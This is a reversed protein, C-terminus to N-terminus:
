SLMKMLLDHVRDSMKELAKRAEKQSNEWQKDQSKAKNIRIQDDAKERNITIQESASRMKGGTKKRDIYNTYYNKAEPSLLAFTKDWMDETYGGYYKKYLNSLITKHENNKEDFPNDTTFISDREAEFEANARRKADNEMMQRAFTLAENKAQDQETQIQYLYQLYSQTKATDARNEIESIMGPVTATIKRNQNAVENRVNAYARQEEAKRLQNEYHQQSDSRTAGALLAASEDLNVKQMQANLTSDSTVAPLNKIKQNALQREANGANVTQPSYVEAPSSVQAMNAADRTAKISRDKTRDTSRNGLVLRAVSLGKQVIDPQTLVDIGNKVKDWFGNVQQGYQAKIVGGEKFSYNYKKAKRMDEIRQILQEKEKQIKALEKGTKGTTPFMKEIEENLIRRVEVPNEEVAKKFEPTDFEKKVRNKFGSSTGNGRISEQFRNFDYASQTQPTPNSSQSNKNEVAESTKKKSSDIQEKKWSRQTFFNRGIVGDINNAQALRVGARQQFSNLEGSNLLQTLKAKESDSLKSKKRLNPSLFSASNSKAKKPTITDRRLKGYRSEEFGANRIEPASISKLQEDTLDINQKKAQARVEEQIVKDIDTRGKTKGIRAVAEDSLAVTQEVDGNKFKFEHKPSSNTDKVKNLVNVDLARGAVRKSVAGVGVLGGLIVQLDEVTINEKQGTYIQNVLQAAHGMGHVAFLSGIVNGSRKIFNLAKRGGDAVNAVDGIVPAISALDLGTSILFNRAAQGKKYIGEKVRQRDVGYQTANAALGTTLTVGDGVGPIFGLIAGTLDLGLAMLEQKNASSLSDWTIPKREGNEVIVTSEIPSTMRDNLLMARELMAERQSLPDTYGANLVIGSQAKLIGGNRNVTIQQNPRSITKPSKWYNTFYNIINQAITTNGVMGALESVTIPNVFTRRKNGVLEIFKDHLKENQQLKDIFTKNSIASYVDQPMNPFVNKDDGGLKSSLAVRREGTLPNLYSEVLVNGESDKLSSEAFYDYYGGNKDSLRQYPTIKQNELLTSNDYVNQLLSNDVNDNVINGYADTIIWKYGRRGTGDNLYNSESMDQVQRLIQDNLLQGNYTTKGKVNYNTDDYLYDRDYFNGMYGADRGTKTSILNHGGNWNTMLIKDADSYRGQRNLNYYNYSPNNLIQYLESEPNRLDSDNYWKNNFNIKGVLWDHGMGAFQHAFEDNFYYGSSEPLGSINLPNMSYSDSNEDYTFYKDALSDNWFGNNFKKWAASKKAALEADVQQKAIEPNVDFTHGMGIMTLYDEQEQTLKSGDVIAKRLNNMWTSGTSNGSEDKIKQYWSLINKLDSWGSTDYKDRYENSGELYSAVQDFYGLNDENILNRFKHTGDELAEYAFSDGTWKNFKEKEPEKEKTSVVKTPDWQGLAYTTENYINQDTNFLGALFSERPKDSDIKKLQRASVNTPKVNSRNRNSDIIVDEGRQLQDWYDAARLREEASLTSIHRELDKMKEDNMEYEIGNRIWKGYKKKTQAPTGAPNSAATGEIPGAPTQFKKVQAM